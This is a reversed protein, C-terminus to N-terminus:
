LDCHETNNCSHDDPDMHECDRCPSEQTWPGVEIRVYRNERRGADRLKVVLEEVTEVDEEEWEWLDPPVTRDILVAGAQYGRPPGHDRVKFHLSGDSLEEWEDVILDVPLNLVRPKKM